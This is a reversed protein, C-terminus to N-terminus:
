RASSSSGSSTPSRRWRPTTCSTTAAASRTGARPTSPTCARRRGSAADQQVFGGADLGDPFRQLTLPRGALHPLVTSAVAEWYRALDSKTTTVDGGDRAPLLVKDPHTVDMGAVTLAADPSM